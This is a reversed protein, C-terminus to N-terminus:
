GAGGRRKLAFNIAHRLLESSACEWEGLYELPEAGTGRKFDWVGKNSQPDVGALDYYRVGRAHCENVMGWLTAYSAYNKRAVNGSAAMLDWGQNGLLVCARLAIMKGHENLCRYVLLSEGLTRSISETAREGVQESLGKLQEMEAYLATIEKVDPKDWREVTLGYKESRKLNHRWNKTTAAMRADAERSIDWLMSLGSTLPNTTRLWGYMRMVLADEARYARLVNMKLVIHRLDSAKRAADLLTEAWAAVEGIPGGPVWVIGVGGPYGRVLFQVLAVVKGSENEAAYRIPRWGFHSRHDGWAWTQMYHQDSFEALHVAWVSADDIVRWSVMFISGDM